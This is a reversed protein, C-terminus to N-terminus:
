MVSGGQGPQRLARAAAPTRRATQGPPSCSRAPRVSQVAQRPPLRPPASNTVVSTFSRLRDGTAWLAALTTPRRRARCLDPLRADTVHDSLASATQRGWAGISVWRIGALLGGLVGEWILVFLLGAVVAHRTLAALALFLAAYTTGAVGGGVGWALARAVDGSDLIIGM